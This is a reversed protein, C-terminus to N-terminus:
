TLRPETELAANILLSTQCCAASLYRGLFINSTHLLGVKILASAGAAPVGALEASVRPHDCVSCVISQGGGSVGPVPNGPCRLGPKSIAGERM